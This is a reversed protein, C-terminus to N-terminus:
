QSYVAGVELCMEKHCAQVRDQISVSGPSQIETVFEFLSDSFMLSFYKLNITLHLLILTEFEYSNSSIFRYSTQGVYKVSILM